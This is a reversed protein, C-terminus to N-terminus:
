GGMLTPPIVTFHRQVTTALQTVAIRPDFLVTMAQALESVTINSQPQWYYNTPPSLPSYINSM